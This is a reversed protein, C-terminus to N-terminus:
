ITLELATGPASTSISFAGPGDKSSEHKYLAAHFVAVNADEVKQTAHFVAVNEDEVKQTAHFVAM